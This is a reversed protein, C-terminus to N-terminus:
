KAWKQAALWNWVSAFAWGVIAAFVFAKVVLVVTTAPNFATVTATTSVFHLNTLWNFFGQGNGSAVIAAWVAHLIAAMSGLTLAFHKENLKQVKTVM